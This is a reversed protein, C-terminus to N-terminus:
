SSGWIPRRRSSPAHAGIVVQVGGAAIQQWHWHREADSLHSHLVAVSTFRKRFRRITQPTLSIEPVLVIAQRGYSVVERIAQIYVETKGSGTVGHLLITRHRGGRQLALITDLARKQDSNLVLDAESLTPEAPATFQSERQRIARIFGKQRLAALPATGCDAAATLEAADMPRGAATLIELVAKQKVSLRASAAGSAPQAVPEFATVLRTGANQKVGAPVVSDLVQGWSCLYYDAIWRTLKLMNASLLPERDVLSEISKLRRRSSPAADTAVCYGVTPRDGKGFPAKVRQGPGILTRLEDPVLYDFEADVPRNFVLRVIMRDADAAAEWPMPEAPLSAADFLQKQSSKNVSHIHGFIPRTRSATASRMTDWSFRGRIDLGARNSVPQPFRAHSKTKEASREVRDMKSVQDQGFAAAFFAPEVLDPENRGARRRVLHGLRDRRALPAGLHEFKRDGAMRLKRHIAHLQGAFAAAERDVREPLKMGVVRRPFEKKQDPGVRQRIERQPSVRRSDRLQRRNDGDIPAIPRHGVQFGQPPLEPRRNAVANLDDRHRADIERRGVDAAANALSLANTKHRRAGAFDIDLLM